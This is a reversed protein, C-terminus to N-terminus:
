ILEENTLQFMFHQPFRQQNRKVQESLRKTPVGYISALDKDLMVHKGRILFIKAESIAINISSNMKWIEM